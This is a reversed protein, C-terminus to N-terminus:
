DLVLEVTDQEQKGGRGHDRIITVVWDFVTQGQHVQAMELDKSVLVRNAAHCHELRLKLQRVTEPYGLRERSLTHNKWRITFGEDPTGFGGQLVDDLADLNRGWNSLGLVRDIEGYFEELTSFRTGDIEYVTM